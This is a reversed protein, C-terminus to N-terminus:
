TEAEWGWAKALLLVTRCPYLQPQGSYHASYMAAEESQCTDCWSLFGSGPEATTFPEHEALIEREAAVRVLVTAPDAHEEILRSYDSIVVRPGWLDRDRMFPEGSAARALREAREHAALLYVVAPHQDTVEAEQEDLEDFALGPM